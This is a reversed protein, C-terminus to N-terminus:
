DTQKSKRYYENREEEMKDLYQKASRNLKGYKSLEETTKKLAEDDFRIEDIKTNYIELFKSIQSPAFNMGKTCAWALASSVTLLERYIVPQSRAVAILESKDINMPLPHERRYSLEEELEKQGGKIVLELAHQMGMVYSDMDRKAM